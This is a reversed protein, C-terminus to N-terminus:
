SLDQKLVLCFSLAVFGVGVGGGVESCLANCLTPVGSVGRGACALLRMRM